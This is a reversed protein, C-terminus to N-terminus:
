GKGDKGNSIGKSNGGNPNGKLIEGRHFRTRRFSGSQETAVCADDTTKAAAQSKDISGNHSERRRGRKAGMRLLSM